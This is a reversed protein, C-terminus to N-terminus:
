KSKQRMTQMALIVSSNNGIEATVDKDDCYFRTSKITPEPNIWADPKFEYYYWRGVKKGNIYHGEAVKEPYIDCGTIGYPLLEYKTFKGHLKGNKFSFVARLGELERMEYRHRMEDYCISYEAGNADFKIQKVPKGDKFMKDSTDEGEPFYKIQYNEIKAM